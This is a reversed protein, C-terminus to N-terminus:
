RPGDKLRLFEKLSMKRAGMMLALKRKAPTLDYHQFSPKNQFWSPKLRLQRAFAQLESPSDAWLHCWRDGNRRGVAAAAANNAIGVSLEDVYVM